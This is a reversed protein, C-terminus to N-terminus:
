AILKGSAISVSTRQAKLKGKGVRQRATMQGVVVVNGERGLSVQGVIGLGVHHLVVTGIISSNIISSSSDRRVTVRRGLNVPSKGSGLHGVLGHYLVFGSALALLRLALEQERGAVHRGLVVLEGLLTAIQGPLEVLHSALDELGVAHNLVLIALNGHQLLLEIAQLGAEVLSVKVQLLGLVRGTAITFLGLKLTVHVLTADHVLALNM